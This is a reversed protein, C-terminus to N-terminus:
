SEKSDSKKKKQPRKSYIMTTFPGEFFTTAVHYSIFVLATLLLGVPSKYSVAHALFLLTSGNYMPNDTINFPFGTVRNKMLIGFYDGLYTGTIGLQYFSSLVLTLGVARILTAILFLVMENIKISLSPQSQLALEFKLDRYIGLCFITLGLVYCGRYADGCLKTLYHKYYEARAVINWFIPNFLIWFIATYLNPDDFNIFGTKKVM